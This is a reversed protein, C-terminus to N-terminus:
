PEISEELVCDTVLTVQSSAKAGLAAKLELDGCEAKWGEDLEVAFSGRDCQSRGREVLLGDSTRLTWSIISGTQECVGLVDMAEEQSTSVYMTKEPFFVEGTDIHDIVDNEGSSAELAPTPTSLDNSPAACNQYSLTIMGLCVYLFLGKYNM